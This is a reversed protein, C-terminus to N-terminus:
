SINWGSTYPEDMSAWEEGILDSASKKPVETQVTTASAVAAEESAKQEAIAATRALEKATKTLTDANQRGGGAKVYVYDLAALRAEVSDSKLVERIYPDTALMEQMLPVKEDFDPKDGLFQNLARGFKAEEAEKAVPNVSQELQAFREEMQQQLRQNEAWVAPAGPAVDNWAQAARQLTYQDGQQYALMTARAPDEDILDDWNSPAQPRSVTQEIGALREELASRLEGLESGQQGLRAQLETYARELDEPTKYKGALLREAQEQATEEEPEEETTSVFRGKEDRARAAQEERADADASEEVTDTEVAVPTEAPSEEEAPTGEAEPAAEEPAPEQGM